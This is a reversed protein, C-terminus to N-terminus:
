YISKQHEYMMEFLFIFFFSKQIITYGQLVASHVTCHLIKILTIEGSFESLELVLEHSDFVEQLLPLYEILTLM